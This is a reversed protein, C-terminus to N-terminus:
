LFGAASALQRGDTGSKTEGVTRVQEYNGAALAALPTTGNLEEVNTSLWSLTGAPKMSGELLKVTAILECLRDAQVGAPAEQRALWARVARPEAGTAKGIDTESLPVRELLRILQDALAITDTAPQTPTATM